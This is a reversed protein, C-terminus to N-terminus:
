EAESIFDPVIGFDNEIREIIHGAASKNYKLHRSVVTGSQTKLFILITTTDSESSYCLCLFPTRKYLVTNLLFQFYSLDEYDLNIAQQYTM